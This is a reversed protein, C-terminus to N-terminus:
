KGNYTFKIDEELAGNKLFEPSPRPIAAHRVADLVLRAHLKNSTNSVVRLNWITGDGRIAFQIRVTGVALRGENAKVNWYWRLGISDYLRKQYAGLPTVASASLSILALSYIFARM